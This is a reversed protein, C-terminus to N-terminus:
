RARRLSTLALLVLAAGALFLGRIGLYRSLWGGAVASTSLALTRASFVAGFAGGRRDVSIEAAALGFALPGTGAAAGGLLARAALLMWYVPALAHLLLAGSSALATLILGKVHGRRDGFRGWLPLAIVNVLAMASFLYGTLLLARESTTGCLDRVHIELLPNTSGMGFQLVFILLLAARLRPNRWVQVLDRLTGRLVELPRARAGADIRRAADERAFLLVLLGGIASAGAVFLFLSDLGVHASLVGGIGPGAIAGLSVATQLSGAVEGQRDAPALVSVLTVSPALFGSFVGQLIRLVLLQLPSRALSMAGVFVTVGAMARLVMLRRGYRDGLAGWLPAMLGASFPAAGYVIGAWLAIEARDTLGLRELHSPFFPLFSMMGCSTVLNAAWVAWYTRKWEPM